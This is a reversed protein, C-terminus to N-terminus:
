YMEGQAARLHAVAKNLASILGYFQEIIDPLSMQYLTDAADRLMEVNGSNVTASLSSAASWLDEVMGPDITESLSRAASYLADATDPDIAEAADHLTMAADPDILAIRSIAAKLERTAEQMSNAILEQLRDETVDSLTSLAATSGKERESKWQELVEIPYDQPKITDVMTHHPTCLLILNAWDAREKDSM